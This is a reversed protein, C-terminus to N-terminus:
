QLFSLVWPSGFCRTMWAQGTIDKVKSMWGAGCIYVIRLHSLIVFFGKNSDLADAAVLVLLGFSMLTIVVTVLFLGIRIFINLGTYNLLM